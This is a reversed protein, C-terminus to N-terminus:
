INVVLGYKKLFTKANNCLIKQAIEDSFLECYDDIITEYNRPTGVQDEHNKLMFEYPFDSGFFIKHNDVSDLAIKLPAFNKWKREIWSTELYVNNLRKALFISNVPDDMHILIVDVDPYEIFLETLKVPSSRFTDTHLTIFLKKERCFDFVPRLFETSPEYINATPHLKIGRIIITGSINLFDSKWEKIYPNIWYTPIFLPYRNLDILDKEAYEKSFISSLSSIVMTIVPSKELYDVIEDIKYHTNHQIGCHGHFDIIQM